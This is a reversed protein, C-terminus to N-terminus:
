VAVAVHEPGRLGDLRLASARPEPRAWRASYLATEGAINKFTQRGLSDLELGRVSGAAHRTAETVLLEGGRAVNAVRAALNVTAGYWDGAREVARGTHAGAHVPPLGELEDHLRIGLRVGEAASRVHIMVADGLSKVVTGGHEAALRSAEDRFRVALDAAV